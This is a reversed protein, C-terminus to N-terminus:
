LDGLDASIWHQPQLYIAVNEGLERHAYELYGGDVKDPPLYRRTMEELQADTGPEIRSVAGDVAVYRISPELREVM